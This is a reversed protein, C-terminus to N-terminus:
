RHLYTITILTNWIKDPHFQRLFRLVGMFEFCALTMTRAAAEASESKNWPQM